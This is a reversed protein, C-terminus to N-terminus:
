DHLPKMLGFEDLANLFPTGRLQSLKQAAQIREVHHGEVVDVLKLVEKHEANTITEDACRQSLERYRQKTSIPLLSDIKQFLVRERNSVSTTSSFKFGRKVLVTQFARVFRDSESGAIFAGPATGVLKRSERLDLGYERAMDTNLAIKFNLPDSSRHRPSHKPRRQITIDAGHSRLLRRIAHIAVEAFRREEVLWHNHFVEGRYREDFERMFDWFVWASQAHDDGPTARDLTQGIPRDLKPRKTTQKAM